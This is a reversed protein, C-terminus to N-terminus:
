RSWSQPNACVSSILAHVMDPINLDPSPPCPKSKDKDVCKVAPTSDIKAMVMSLCDERVAAPAEECMMRAGRAEFEAVRNRVDPNMGRAANVLLQAPEGVRGAAYNMLLTDLPTMCDNILKDNM